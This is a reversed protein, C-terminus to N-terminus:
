IGIGMGVFKALDSLTDHMDPPVPGGGLWIAAQNLRDLVAKILYAEDVTFGMAQLDAQTTVSSWEQLQEQRQFLAIVERAIGIMNDNVYSQNVTVGVAM